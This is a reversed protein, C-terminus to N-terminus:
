NTTTREAAATTSRREEHQQTGATTEEPLSNNNSKNCRGSNGSRRASNLKAQQQRPTRHNQAMMKIQKTETQAEVTEETPMESSTEWVADEGKSSIETAATKRNVVADAAPGKLEQEQRM